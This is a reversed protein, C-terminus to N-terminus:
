ETYNDIYPFYPHHSLTNGKCYRVSYSNQLSMLNEMDVQSLKFDFVDFNSRIRSPTVSKPIVVVGRELAFRILIQAATKGHNEAIKIVVQDDMLIRDDIAKYHDPRAPSGLPSYATMLIDNEKCKKLLEENNLYFLDM